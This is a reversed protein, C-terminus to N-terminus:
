KWNKESQAVVYAAVDEIQEPKLQGTKGFATMMGKGNTVQAIIAATLDTGADKAFIELHAKSLTKQPNITNGGNQHCVACKNSFIEAGKAIDGAIAPRPLALSVLTFFLLAIALLKKM